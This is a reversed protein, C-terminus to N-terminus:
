VDPSLDPLREEKDVRLLHSNSAIMREKVITKADPHFFLRNWCQIKSLLEAVRRGEADKGVVGVFTTVCGLAALNAVVNGAGGLMEKCSRIKLVPVPAEPSIRDVTGYAFRDLMLDGIALAKVNSFKEIYDRM